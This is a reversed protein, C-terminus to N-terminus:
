FLEFILDHKIPDFHTIGLVWAALSGNIFSTIEYKKISKVFERLGLLLKAYGKEKIVSIEYELRKKYESNESLGKNKLGALCLASFDDKLSLDKTYILM